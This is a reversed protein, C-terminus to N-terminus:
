TSTGRILGISGYTERYGMKSPCQCIKAVKLKLMYPILPQEVELVEDIYTIVM